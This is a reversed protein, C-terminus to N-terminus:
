TDTRRRCSLPKEQYESKHANYTALIESGELSASIDGLRATLRDAEDRRPSGGPRDEKGPSVSGTDKLRFLEERLKRKEEPDTTRDYAAKTRSLQQDMEAFKPDYLYMAEELERKATAVDQLFGEQRVTGEQAEYAKTLEDFREAKLRLNLKILEPDDVPRGTIEALRELDRVSDPKHQERTENELSSSSSAQVEGGTVQAGLQAEIQALRERLAENEQRLADIEGTVVELVQHGTDDQQEPSPTAQEETPAINEHIPAESM